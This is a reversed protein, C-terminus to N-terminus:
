PEATSEADAMKAGTICNGCPLGGKLVIQTHSVTGRTDLKAEWKGLQLQWVLM